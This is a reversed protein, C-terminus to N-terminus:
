KVLHFSLNDRQYLYVSDTLIDEPDVKKSNVQIVCERLKDQDFGDKRIILFEHISSPLIYYDSALFESIVKTINKYFLVKAGFKVDKSRLVYAIDNTRMQDDDFSLNMDCLLNNTNMRGNVADQISVLVPPYWQETNEIAIDYLEDLTIGYSVFMENTIRKLISHKEELQVMISFYILLDEVCKYPGEKTIHQNSKYGVLSFVIKSKVSKFDFLNISSVDFLSNYGGIIIQIEEILEQLVNGEKYKLYVEKINIPLAIAVGKQIFVLTEKKVENNVKAEIIVFTVEKVCSSLSDKLEDCIKKKFQKYDM